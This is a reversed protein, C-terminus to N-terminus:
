SWIFPVRLLGEFHFPGKNILWHDGMMDGHDAMFIVITNERLGLSELRDLVRGVEQDIFSIMGYTRAIIERIQEDGVRTPERRGSLQMASEYIERYFPALDDLEGARRAPLPISAPDYMSAWPEPPCFPHHPDPFSCWLFFPEQADAQRELFAISRDAVWRNFHLEQPLAMTWSQEAGTPSPMGAEPSLLRVADPHERRLWNLYDGFVGSGHGGVFEVTQIGYYPQPLGQVRGSEWLPRSEAFRQPDITKPDIGNPSNFNSLHLKGVSHTRYGAETLAGPVTPLDQRLPIGNTRVGHGRPTLGTFWTSRGPMCLPNNVYAREFRVGSQAIRDINPTRLITNGYCSLHDARHQDTVFCLVNPRHSMAREEGRHDNRCM